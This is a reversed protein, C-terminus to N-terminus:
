LMLMWLALWDVLTVDADCNAHLRCSFPCDVGVVVYKPALMPIMMLAELRDCSGDEVNNYVGAADDVVAMVVTHDGISVMVATISVLVSILKTQLGKPKLM